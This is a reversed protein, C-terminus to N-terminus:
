HMKIIHNKNLLAMAAKFTPWHLHWNHKSSVHNQEQKPEFTLYKKSFGM